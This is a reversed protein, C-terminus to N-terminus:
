WDDDPDLWLNDGGEEDADEEARPKKKKKKKGEGSEERVKEDLVWRAEARALLEGFKRNYVIMDRNFGPGPFNGTSDLLTSDILPLIMETPIYDHLKMKKKKSVEVVIGYKNKEMFKKLDSKIEPFSDGTFNSFFERQDEEGLIFASHYAPCVMKTQCSTFSSWVFLALFIYPIQNKSL